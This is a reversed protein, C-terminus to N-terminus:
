TLVRCSVTICKCLLAHHEVAFKVFLVCKFVRTKGTSVCEVIIYVVSVGLFRTMLRACWLIILMLLFRSGIHDDNWISTHGHLVLSVTTM